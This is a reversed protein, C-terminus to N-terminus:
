ILHQGEGRLGNWAYLRSLYFYGWPILRSDTFFGTKLGKVGLDPLDVCYHPSMFFLKLLWIIQLFPNM